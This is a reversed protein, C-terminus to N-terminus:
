SENKMIQEDSFDIDGSSCCGPVLVGGNMTGDGAVGGGGGTNSDGGDGADGMEGENGIVTGDVMGAGWTITGALRQV